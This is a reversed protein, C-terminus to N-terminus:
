LDFKVGNHRLSLRECTFGAVLQELIHELTYEGQRKETGLDRHNLNIKDMVEFEGMTLQSGHELTTEIALQLQKSISQGIGDVHVTNSKFSGLLKLMFHVAMDSLDNSSVDIIM